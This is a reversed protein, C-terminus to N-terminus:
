AQAQLPFLSPVDQQVIYGHRTYVVRFTDTHVARMKAAWSEADERLAYPGKYPNSTIWEYRNVKWYKPTKYTGHNM